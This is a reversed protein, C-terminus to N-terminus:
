FTKRLIKGYRFSYGNKTVSCNHELWRLINCADRSSQAVVEAYEGTALNEVNFIPFKGRAPNVPQEGFLEGQLYPM